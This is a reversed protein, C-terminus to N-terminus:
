AIQTTMVASVLSSSCVTHDDPNERINWSVSFVTLDASIQVLAASITVLKTLLDTWDSSMYTNNIICTLRM